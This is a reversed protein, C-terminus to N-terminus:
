SFFDRSLTGKFHSSRAQDSDPQQDRELTWDLWRDLQAERLHDIFKNELCCYVFPLPIYTATGTHPHIFFTYFLFILSCLFSLFSKFVMWIIILVRFSHFLYINIIFIVFFRTVLSRLGKVM